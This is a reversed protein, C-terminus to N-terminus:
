LSADPSETQTRSHAVKLATTPRDMDRLLFYQPPAPKPDAAVPQWALYDAIADRLPKTPQRGALAPRHFSTLGSRGQRLHLRTRVAIACCISSRPCPRERRSTRPRWATAFCHSARYASEVGARKLARDVLWYSAFGVLPAIDRIFVSLSSCHPRLQRVHDPM